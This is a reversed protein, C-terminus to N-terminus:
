LYTRWLYGPAHSLIRALTEGPGFLRYAIKVHCQAGPSPRFTVELEPNYWEGFHSFAIMKKRIKADTELGFLDSEITLTGTSVRGGVYLELYNVKLKGLHPVWRPNLKMQKTKQCTYPATERLAAFHTWGAHGTLFALAFIACWHRKLFAM